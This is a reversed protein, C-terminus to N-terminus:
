LEELIIIAILALVGLMMMMDNDSSGLNESNQGSVEEVTDHLLSRLCHARVETYNGFKSVTNGDCIINAGNLTLTQQAKAATECASNLNKAIAVKIKDTCNDAECKANAQRDQADQLTKAFEEDASVVVEAIADIIPAMECSSNVSARNMFTLNCNDGMIVNVKNLEIDQISTASALCNIKFQADLIGDIDIPESGGGGM